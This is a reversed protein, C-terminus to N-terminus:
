VAIRHHLYHLLAQNKKKPCHEVFSVSSFCPVLSVLPLGGGVHGRWAAYHLPTLDYADLVTNVPAGENLLKTLAGVDGDKAARRLAARTEDSIRASGPALDGPKKDGLKKRHEEKARSRM